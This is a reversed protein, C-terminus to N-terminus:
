VHAVELPYDRVARPLNDYAEHMWRQSHLAGDEAIPLGAHRRMDDCGPCLPTGPRYGESQFVRGEPVRGGTWCGCCECHEDARGTIFCCSPREYWPPLSEGKGRLKLRVLSPAERALWFADVEPHVMSHYSHSV